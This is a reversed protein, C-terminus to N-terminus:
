IELQLQLNLLSFSGSLTLTTPVVPIREQKRVLLLYLIGEM